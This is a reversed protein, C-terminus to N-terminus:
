EKIRLSTTKIYSLSRNTVAFYYEGDEPATFSFTHEDDNVKHLDYLCYKGNYIYGFEIYEGVPECAAFSTDIALTLTIGEGQNM